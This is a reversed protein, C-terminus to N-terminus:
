AIAMGPIALLCYLQKTDILQRLWTWALLSFRAPSPLCSYFKGVLFFGALRVGQLSKSEPL